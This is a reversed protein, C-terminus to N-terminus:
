IIHKKALCGTCNVDKWAASWLHGFPWHGPSNETMGCLCYGHRLYHITKKGARPVERTPKRSVRKRSEVKRKSARLRSVRQLTSAVMKRRAPKTRDTRRSPSRGHKTAPLLHQLYSAAQSLCAQAGRLYEAAREAERLYAAVKGEAVEVQFMAKQLTAAHDLPRSSIEKKTAM